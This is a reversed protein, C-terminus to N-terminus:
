IGIGGLNKELYLRLFSLAQPHNIPIEGLEAKLDKTSFEFNKDDFSIKFFFDIDPCTAVLAYITGSINGMPPLDLHSAPLIAVLETGEGLKSKIELNGGCSGVIENFLSIGLGVRRTKRTTTFPNKIEKLIEEPIGKGDDKIRIRLFKSDKMIEVLINKAGASISNEVLDLIHLSIEKM